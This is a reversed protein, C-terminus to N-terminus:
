KESKLTEDAAGIVTYLVGTAVAKLADLKVNLADAVVVPVAVIVTRIADTEVEIM